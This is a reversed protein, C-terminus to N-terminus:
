WCDIGVLRCLETHNLSIMTAFQIELKDRLQYQTFQKSVEDVKVEYCERKPPDYIM